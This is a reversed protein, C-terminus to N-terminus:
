QYVGVPDDALRRGYYFGYAEPLNACLNYFDLHEMVAPLSQPVTTDLEDPRCGLADALRRRLSAIVGSSAARPQSSLSMPELASAWTGYRQRALGLVERRVREPFTSVLIAAEEDPELRHPSTEM